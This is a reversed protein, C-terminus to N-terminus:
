WRANWKSKLKNNSKTKIKHRQNEDVIHSFWVEVRNGQKVENHLGKKFRCESPWGQSYPPSGTCMRDCGGYFYRNFNVTSGVYKVKGDVKILFVGCGLVTNSVRFQCYPVSDEPNPKEKPDKPIPSENAIRGERDRELNIACIKIFDNM